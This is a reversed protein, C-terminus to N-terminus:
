KGSNKRVYNEWDFQQKRSTKTNRSNQIKIIKARRENFTMEDKKVPMRSSKKRPYKNKNCSRCAM